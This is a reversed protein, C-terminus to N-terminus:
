AAKAQQSDFDIVAPDNMETDTPLLEVTDRRASRRVLIQFVAFAFLGLVACLQCARWFFQDILLNGRQAMQEVRRQTMDDTARLTRDVQNDLQRSVVVREEHLAGLVIGREERLTNLILSREDELQELTDQRMRDVDRLTSLREEAVIGRLALREREVIGPLEDVTHAMRAISQRAIALDQLPRQITSIQSADILLLEAEWRAQKPLHNAYLISLKRLDDINENLNAVVQFLERGPEQVEEIYRSAIPERDFYLSTLPFDAAFKAVFEKGLRLEGGLSRNIHELRQELAYCEESAIPQWPGFSAHGAPSDFLEIM